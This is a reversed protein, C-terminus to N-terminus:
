FYDFNLNVSLVLLRVYTRIVNMETLLYDFGALTERGNYWIRNMSSFRIAESSALVLLPLVAFLIMSLCLYGAGKFSKRRNRLYVTLLGISAGALIVGYTFTAIKEYYQIPHKYNQMGSLGIAKPFNLSLLTLIIVAPFWIKAM